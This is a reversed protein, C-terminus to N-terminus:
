PEDAAVYPKKSRRTATLRPEPARPAIATAVRPAPERETLPATGSAPLAPAHAPQAVSPIWVQGELVARLAAILTSVAFRKHVM